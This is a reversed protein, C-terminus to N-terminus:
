QANNCGKGQAATLVYMGRQGTLETAISIIHIQEPCPCQKEKSKYLYLFM